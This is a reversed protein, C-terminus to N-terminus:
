TINTVHFALPAGSGTAFDVQYSLAVLPRIEDPVDGYVGADWSRTFLSVVHLPVQRHFLWVLGFDDGLFYGHATQLYPLAAAMVVALCAATARLSVTRKSSADGGVSAILEQSVLRRERISRRYSVAAM